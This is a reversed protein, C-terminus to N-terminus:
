RPPPRRGAAPAAPLALALASQPGGKAHALLGPAQGPQPGCGAAVQRLARAPAQQPADPAGSAAPASARCAHAAPPLRAHRLATCRQRQALLFEAGPALLRAAGHAQKAWPSAGTAAAPLRTAVAAPAAHTQNAVARCLHCMPPRGPMTGVSAQRARAQLSHTAWPGADAAPLPLRPAAAAPPGRAQLAATWRGAAHVLLVCCRTALDGAAPSGTRLRPM